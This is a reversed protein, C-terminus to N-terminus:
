TPTLYSNSIKSKPNMRPSNEPHTKKNQRRLFLVHNKRKVFLVAFTKAYM